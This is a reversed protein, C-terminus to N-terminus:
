HTEVDGGTAEPATFDGSLSIMEDGAHCERITAVVDFMTQAYHFGKYYSEDAKKMEELCIFVRSGLPLNFVAAFWCRGHTDKRATDYRGFSLFGVAGSEKIQLKVVGKDKPILSKLDEPAYRQLDEKTLHSAVGKGVLKLTMRAQLNRTDLEWREEEPESLCSAYGLPMGITLTDGFACTMTTPFTRLKALRIFEEYALKMAPLHESLYGIVMIHHETGHYPVVLRLGSMGKATYTSEYADVDWRKTFRYELRQGGLKNKIFEKDFPEYQDLTNIESQHLWTSEVTFSVGNSLERIYFRWAGPALRNQKWDDPIRYTLCGSQCWGSREFARRISEPTANLAISMLSLLIPLIIPAAIFVGFVWEGAIPVSTFLKLGLMVFPAIFFGYALIALRPHLALRVAMRSRGVDNENDFDQKNSKM